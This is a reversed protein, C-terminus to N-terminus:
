SFFYRLMESHIRMVSYLKLAEQLADISMPLSHNGLREFGGKSEELAEITALTIAVRDRVEDDEDYQVRTLLTAISSRLSAVQSAFKGLASVAACRMPANELILRNYIFRVLMSPQEISPGHDGLFHLVRVGLATYESDEVFEALNM